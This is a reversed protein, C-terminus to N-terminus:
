LILKQGTALEQLLMINIAGMAVRGNNLEKSKMDVLKAQDVPKLNLPDFRMDGIEHDKRISWTETYPDNFTLVSVIEFMSIALLVWPWFSQLPTAQFAIYSPVDIKGGFLPHFKEAVPFGSAALMALRAHKTEAERYFRLRGPTLDKSLGLPDFFGLPTTVGPLDATSTLSHAFTLVLYLPM